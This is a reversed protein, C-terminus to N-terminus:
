NLPQYATSILGQMLEDAMEQFAQIKGEGLLTSNVHTLQLAANLSGVSKGATLDPWIKELTGAIDEQISAAWVNELGAPPIGSGLLMLGRSALRNYVEPDTITGDIFAVNFRNSEIAQYGAEWGAADTASSLNVLLPFQAYPPVLPSCSGCFYGGGNFYAWAADTGLPTDIAILGVARWDNSLMMSLYGGAFLVQRSNPKIISLNGAAQLNADTIAVFQIAPHASALVGLDMNPANIIIVRMADNIQNVDLSQVSEFQLGTDQALQQVVAAAQQSTEGQDASVWVARLPEPTPTAPVTTETPIVTPTPTETPSLAPVMQCASILLVLWLAALYRTWRLIKVM